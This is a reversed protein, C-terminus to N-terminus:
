ISSKEHQSSNFIAFVYTLVQDGLLPVMDEVLTKPTKGMATLGTSSDQEVKAVADLRKKGYIDMSDQAM